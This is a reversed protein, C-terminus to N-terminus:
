WSPFIPAPSWEHRQKLESSPDWHTEVSMLCGDEQPYLKTYRLTRDITFLGQLTQLRTPM